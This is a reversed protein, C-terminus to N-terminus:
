FRNELARRCGDTESEERGGRLVFIKAGLEASLDM